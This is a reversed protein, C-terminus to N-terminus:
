LLFPFIFPHHFCRIKHFIQDFIDKMMTKPIEEKGIKTPKSLLYFWLIM